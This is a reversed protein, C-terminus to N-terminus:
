LYKYNKQKLRDRKFFCFTLMGATNDKKERCSYQDSRSSNNEDAVTVVFNKNDAMCKNEKGTLGIQYTLAYISFKPSLNLMLFIAVLIPCM